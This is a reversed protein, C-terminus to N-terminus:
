ACDSQWASKEVLRMVSYVEELDASWYVTWDFRVIYIQDMKQRMPKSMIIITMFNVIKKSIGFCTYISTCFAM